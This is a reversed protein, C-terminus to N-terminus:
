IGGIFLTAIIALAIVWLPPNKEYWRLAPRAYRQAGQRNRERDEKYGM